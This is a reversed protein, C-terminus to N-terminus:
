TLCDMDEATPQQSTLSAKRMIQYNRVVPCLWRLRGSVEAAVARVCSQIGLEGDCRHLWTSMASAVSKFAKGIADFGKGVISRDDPMEQADPQGQNLGAMAGLLEQMAAKGALKIPDSMVDLPSLKLEEPTPMFQTAVSQKKVAM